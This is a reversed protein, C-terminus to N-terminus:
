EELIRTRPLSMRRQALVSRSVMALSRNASRSFGFPLPHLNLSHRDIGVQAKPIGGLNTACAKGSLEDHIHSAEM